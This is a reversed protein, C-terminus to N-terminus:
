RKGGTVLRALSLASLFGALTCVLVLDIAWRTSTAIGLIAVLTVFSFFVVDAGVARDADSPGRVIRWTATAMSLVVVVFAISLATM